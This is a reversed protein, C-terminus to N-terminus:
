PIILFWLSARAFAFARPRTISGEYSAMVKRAHTGERVDLALFGTM